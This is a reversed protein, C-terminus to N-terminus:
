DPISNLVEGAQYTELKSFLEAYDAASMKCYWQWDTTYINLEPDRHVISILVLPTERYVYDIALQEESGTLSIYYRMDDKVYVLYPDYKSAGIAKDRYTLQRFPEVRSCLDIISNKLEEGAVRVSEINPCTVNYVYLDNCDALEKKGWPGESSYEKGCGFLAILLVLLGIIAIIRKGIITKM